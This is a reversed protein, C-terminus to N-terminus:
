GPAFVRSFALEAGAGTLVLHGDGDVGAAAVGRLAEFLGAELDNRVPDVCARKTSALEGIRLAGDSTDDVYSGGFANCGGDGSVKGGEFTIWIDPGAPM